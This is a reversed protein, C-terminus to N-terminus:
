KGAVRLYLARWSHYERWWALRPEPGPDRPPTTVVQWRREGALFGPRDLPDAGLGTLLGTM